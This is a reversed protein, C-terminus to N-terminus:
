TIDELNVGILFIGERNALDITASQDIILSAGAELGIGSLGAEAVNLVTQVGIVPLDIRRQKGPKARKVLVGKRKGAQKKYDTELSGARVLMADTGEQAEVALVLGDSVVCGQGIDEKGILGAVHFARQMDLQAAKDPRAHTLLGEPCLLDHYIEEAGVVDFGAEQFIEMFATIAADDGNDAAASIRPFVRQGETDFEIQAFDARKIYGAFVIFQCNAEKFAALAGGIAGLNIIKGPYASLRAEALGEISLIYIEYGQALASQAISEPLQGKGALIGLRSLM